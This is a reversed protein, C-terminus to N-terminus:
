TLTSNLLKEKNKFNHKHYLSPIAGAAAGYLVPKLLKKFNLLKRKKM